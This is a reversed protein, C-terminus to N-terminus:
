EVAEWLDPLQKEFHEKVDLTKTRLANGLGQKVRDFWREVESPNLDLARCAESVKTKSQTIDLVLSTKSKATWRKITEEMLTSM